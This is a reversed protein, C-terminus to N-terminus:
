KWWSYGMRFNLSDHMAPNESGLGANSIHIFKFGLSVNQRPSRFINVGGGVQPTFNVASTDRGWNLPFKQDTWLLGGGLQVWPVTWQRESENFNWRLLFPTVRVM